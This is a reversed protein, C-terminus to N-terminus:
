FNLLVKPRIINNQEFLTDIPNVIPVYPVYISYFILISIGM